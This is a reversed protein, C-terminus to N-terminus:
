LDGTVDGLCMSLRAKSVDIGLAQKLVTTKM